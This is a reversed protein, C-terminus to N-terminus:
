AVRSSIIHLATIRSLLITNTNRLLIQSHYPHIFSLGYRRSRILNNSVDCFLSGLQAFDIRKALKHHTACPLFSNVDLDLLVEPKISRLLSIPRAATEARRLGDRRGGRWKNGIEPSTAKLTVKARCIVEFRAEEGAWTHTEIHRAAGAAM